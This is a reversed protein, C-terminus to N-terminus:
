APPPHTTSTRGGDAQTQTRIFTQWGAPTCAPNQDPERGATLRVKTGTKCATSGTSEVGYARVALLKQKQLPAWCAKPKLGAESSQM